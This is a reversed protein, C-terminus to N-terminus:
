QTPPPPPPAVYGPSVCHGKANAATVGPTVVASGSTQVFEKGQQECQSAAVDQAHEEAVDPSYCGALAVTGAAALLQFIPKMDNGRMRRDDGYRAFVSSQERAGLEGRFAGTEPAAGAKILRNWDGCKINSAAGM